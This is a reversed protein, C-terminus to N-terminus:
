VFLGYEIYVGFWDRFTTVIHSGVTHFDKSWTIPSHHHKKEMKHNRCCIIDFFIKM